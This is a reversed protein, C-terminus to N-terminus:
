PLAQSVAGRGKEREGGRGHFKELNKFDRFLLTLLLALLIKQHYRKLFNM